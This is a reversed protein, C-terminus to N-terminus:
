PYCIFFISVAHAFIIPDSIKMMTAKMHLSLLVGTEKADKIEKELFSLLAVKSMVSADIIEKSLIPIDQKIVSTSGDKAFLIIDVNTAHDVCVSKENHFFDGEKMTSVHTRSASSWEGMLHPNLKAYNKVSNPARRDSNGERLVPNVASGKVKNYNAQIKKERDDKPSNPYSPINFGKSQLEKIADTLQPLSASINPLKIINAEPKKVLEGLDALADHVRQDEQLYEPFIALIRAALSIDKTDIQIGAKSIFAKIIPLLSHTALFPAEDTKTYIIRLDKKSM